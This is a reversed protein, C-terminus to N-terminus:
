FTLEDDPPEEDPDDEVYLRSRGADQWAKVRAVAAASVWVPPVTYMEMIALPIREECWPPSRWQDAVV